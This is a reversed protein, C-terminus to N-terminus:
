NKVERSKWSISKKSIQYYLSRSFIIVYFVLGVPFFLSTLFKFAGIRRLMWYIQLVFALYLSFWIIISNGSIVGLILKITIMFGASLWCIIMLLNFFPTQGAGAAFAKTWGNILAKFGDPYMRFSLTGKGGLCKLNVGADKFKKAMFVNELIKDKVSSHGEIEFYNKKSVILSQGFLGTPKINKFPTFANMSGVMIINFFASFEEYLKETKHYPAISLTLGKWHNSSQLEFLYTDVIKKLGNPEVMTDADLFLFIDGKASNAGQWCAWPKGKWGEPLPKSDIVVADFNLAIEKTRDTSSDNVVIVEFVKFEQNNLSLLLKGINHEENRAPIIVSVKPYEEVFKHEQCLEIKFLFYFGCLFCFISISILIISSIEM